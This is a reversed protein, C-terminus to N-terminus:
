GHPRPQTNRMRIASFCLSSAMVDDHLSWLSPLFRLEVGRHRQEALLDSVETTGVCAVSSNSLWYGADSDHLTFTAPPMEYVFLRCAAIRERWDAEVAIIRRAASGQFFRERDQVTTDTGAAFCIRPCERPLLYNPLCQEDIAWVVPRTLEPSTPLALRPHFVGLEADESVHFLRAGAM